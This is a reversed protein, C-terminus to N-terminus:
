GLRELEALIRGLVEGAPGPILYDSVRGTLPTAQPNIEIVTAGAQKAILPMFAAPQVEASTGVVLLVDCRTCVQQSRLLHQPDIAEGFFVCDPRLIGGCDCHPPLVSTDVAATPLYRHCAMCRQRAFSGHFEIVDRNGAAQHLGDV